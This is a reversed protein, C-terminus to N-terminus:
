VTARTCRNYKILKDRVRECSQFYNVCNKRVFQPSSYRSIGDRLGSRLSPHPFAPLTGANPSSDLKHLFSTDIKLAALPSKIVKQWDLYFTTVNM